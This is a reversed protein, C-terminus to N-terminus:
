EVHNTNSIRFWPFPSDVVFKNKIRTVLSAPNYLADTSYKSLSERAHHFYYDSMRSGHTTFYQESRKKAKEIEKHDYFPTDVIHIEGSSTLLQTSRKLVDNLDSFYQLSSAFIIHDFKAPFNITFLDGFIFALNSHSNFIRSAQKLETENVDLAVVEIKQLQSIMNSLWGNGCGVELIKIDSYNALYNKLRTASRKRIQWERYLPHKAPLDPLVHAEPDSFLRQEKKRIDIYANEFNSKTFGQQYFLNDVFRFNADRMLTERVM